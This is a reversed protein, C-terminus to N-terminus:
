NRARIDSRDRGRSVSGSRPKVLGMISKLATSKGMGNRGLLAVLEGEDVVMSMDQLAHSEGYYTNLHDVELLM